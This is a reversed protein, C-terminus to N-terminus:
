RNGLGRAVGTPGNRVYDGIDTDTDVVRNEPLEAVTAGINHQSTTGPVLYDSHGEVGRLTTGDPAVADHSALPTVGPLQNPDTGFRGLDAIGDASAEIVGVHGDPVRLDSVDGTGLGPSGFVVADDVPTTVEQLGYGTTTSGYSHGIATLHPDGQHTANIGDYFRALDAGGHEAGRAILVSRDVETMTDWQPADYGLWAVTAVGDGPRGALRLQQVSNRRLEDMDRAYGTLSDRVTTTLGPTFVGVHRATDIDGIAIAARPALHGDIDLALLQRGPADAAATVAAVAGRQDRLREVQERLGRQEVTEDRTPEDSPVPAAGATIGLSANWRREAEALRDDIPGAIDPLRARNAEDRVASPVGDLNGVLDPRLVLLQERAANDLGAWWSGVQSPSAGPPPGGPHSGTAAGAAGALTAGTGDDVQEAVARELAARLATDVQDARRLVGTLIEVVEARSGARAARVTEVQEVPVVPPNPDAVVGDPGVTFGHHAALDDARRLEAPIAEVADAADALAVRAATMGAAVRRLREALGDHASRARDAAIGRWVAEAPIAVALDGDLDVVRDRVRGLGRLASELGAADWRRVDALAAM